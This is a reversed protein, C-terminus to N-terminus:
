WITQTHKARLKAVRAAPLGEYKERRRERKANLTKPSLSSFSTWFNLFRPPFPCILIGRFVVSAFDFYEQKKECHFSFVLLLFPVFVSLFFVFLCVYFSTM